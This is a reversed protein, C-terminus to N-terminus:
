TDRRRVDRLYRREPPVDMDDCLTEWVLRVKEGDAIAQEPTRDGLAHLHHNGAVTEAYGRGFEQEMLARFESLRM